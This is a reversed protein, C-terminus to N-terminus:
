IIQKLINVRKAMWKKKDAAMKATKLMESIRGLEKSNEEKSKEKQKKIYAIEQEDCTSEDAVSCGKALTEETFKKLDDFSRGGKYDAGEDGTEATYYKLTPFGKVGNEDCVSKSEDATCDVDGILM